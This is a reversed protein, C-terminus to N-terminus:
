LNLIANYTNSDVDKVVVGGQGVRLFFASMERHRETGGLSSEKERDRYIYIHFALEWDYTPYFTLCPKLGKRPKSTLKFKTYMHLMYCVMTLNTFQWFLQLLVTESENM